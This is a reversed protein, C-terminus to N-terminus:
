IGVTSEAHKFIDYRVSNKPPPLLSLLNTKKHPGTYPTIRRKVPGDSEDDSDSQNLSPAMIKIPGKRNKKVNMKLPESEYSKAEPITSLDENEDIYDAPEPEGTRFFNLTPTLDRFFALKRPLKHFLPIQFLM